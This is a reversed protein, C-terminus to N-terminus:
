PLPFLTSFTNQLIVKRFKVSAAYNGTGDEKELTELALENYPKETSTGRIVGPIALASNYQISELKQHFSVNYAQDSVNDAM